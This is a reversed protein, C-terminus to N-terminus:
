SELKKQNCTKCLLQLNDLTNNGGEFIPVIYDYQLDKRSGCAVCQGKNRIWVKRRVVPTIYGPHSPDQYDIPEQQVFEARGDANNTKEVELEQVEPPAEDEEEPDVIASKQAVSEVKPPRKDDRKKDHSRTWIRYFYALFIVAVIPFSIKIYKLYQNEPKMNPAKPSPAKQPEKEIGKQRNVESATEM